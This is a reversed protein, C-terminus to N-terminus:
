CWGGGSMYEFNRGNLPVRALNMGPGLQVNTGKQFFEEGMAKGYQYCLEPDWTAAVTLGSPFSTTTGPYNDDRFGQPGDNLKLAPIGLRENGAVYGVYQSGSSGHLMVLKEDTTMEALILQARDHPSLTRDMWAVTHCSVFAVVGLCIFSIIRLRCMRIPM